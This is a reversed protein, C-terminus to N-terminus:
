DSQTTPLSKAEDAASRRTLLRWGAAVVGLLMLVVAAGAGVLGVATGRALSAQERTEIPEILVEEEALTLPVANRARLLRSYAAAFEAGFLMVQASLYLWLSLAIVSAISGYIAGWNARTATYWVFGKKLVEWGVGGVIAGPWVDGWDLPARPLFRYLLAFLLVTTSTLILPLALPWLTDSWPLRAAYQAVLDISTNIITFIVLLFGTAIVMGMAKVRLLLAGGIGQPADTDWIVNLALRIHGFLNSASLVLVILSVLSTSGSAKRTTLLISEVMDTAEPLTQEVAEFVVGQADMAIPVGADLLLGLLSVSLLLLPFISFLAYYALAASRQTCEHEGFNVFSRRTITIIDILALRLSYLSM